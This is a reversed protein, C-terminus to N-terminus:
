LMFPVFMKTRKMYERYAEGFYRINEREEVRATAVLFGTATLAILTESVTPQKFFIGWDLFILSGYMPHRIYRYIGRTVLATTKEMDLMPTDDRRNDLKGMLHLLAFGSVVLLLSTLMCLGSIIQHPTYPEVYWVNMNLVLMFLMLEWAIFRYFGHAYGQTEPKLLSARSLWAIVLTAGVFVIIETMTARTTLCAEM